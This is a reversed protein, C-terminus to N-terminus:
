RVSTTPISQRPRVSTPASSGSTWQRPPCPRGWAGGCAPSAAPRSGRAPSRRASSGGVSGASSGGGDVGHRRGCGAPGATSTWTRVGRAWSFTVIQWRVFERVLGYLWITTVSGEAAMLPWAEGCAARDEGRTDVVPSVDDRRDPRAQGTPRFQGSPRRTRFLPHSSGGSTPGSGPADTPSGRTRRTWARRNVTVTRWRGRRRRRRRGERDEDVADDTSVTPGTAGPSSGLHHDEAAYRAAPELAELVLREGDIHPGAALDDGALHEGDVAGGGGGPDLDGGLRAQAPWVAWPVTVTVLLPTAETTTVAATSPAGTLFARTTRGRAGGLRRGGVERLVLVLGDRTLM